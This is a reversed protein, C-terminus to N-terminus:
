KLVDQQWATDGGDMRFSLEELLAAASSLDLFKASPQEYCVLANEGRDFIRSECSVYTQSIIDLSQSLRRCYCSQTNVASVLAKLSHCIDEMGAIASLQGKVEAMAQGNSMLATYVIRLADCGAYLRDTNTAIM